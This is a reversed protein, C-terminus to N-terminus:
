EQTSSNEKNSKEVKSESDTASQKSQTDDNKAKAKPKVLKTNFANMAKTIGVELISESADAASLVSRQVDDREEKMFKSLVWDAQGMFKPVNGVGIRVRPYDEGGLIRDIDSLGNHGGSGGRKRVRIHGVPLAIDDVLVILDEQPDLKFFRIAEGVSQGSLNMYGTPKMLIVKETGIITDLTVAHFRSKPIQGAAHRQALVDVAMFGANHRTWEYQAGPNGLGVILKM